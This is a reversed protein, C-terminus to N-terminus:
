REKKALFFANFSIWLGHYVKYWTSFATFTLNFKKMGKFDAFIARPSKKSLIESM